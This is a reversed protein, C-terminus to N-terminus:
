SNDTSKDFFISCIEATAHIGNPGHIVTQGWGPSLASGDWALALDLHASQPANGKWAWALYGISNDLCYQMLYAINVDGDSHRHGFEGVCVCLGAKAAYQLNESISAPNSGATGYIHLSFMVNELPDCELLDQGANEMCKGNQGGGACDVMITHRLGAQRLMPIAELYASKWTTSNSLSPWENAINLIVYAEQGVLVDQIDVFYQAAALLADKGPVGTTDHVELIAILNNEKCIQIISAVSDAETREWQQGNSLVIRVCNCGAAALAHATEEMQDPYWAHLHNVGRMMFPNGNADLLTAGDVHFGTQPPAAETPVTAQTAPGTTPVASDACAVCLLGLCLATCIWLLASFKRRGM